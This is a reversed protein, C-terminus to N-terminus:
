KSPSDPAATPETYHADGVKERIQTSTTVVAELQSSPSLKTLAYNATLEEDTAMVKKFRRKFTAEYRAPTSAPREASIVQASFSGRIDEGDDTKFHFRHSSATEIGVLVGSVTVTEEVDEAAEALTSILSQLEPVQLLLAPRSDDGRLWRVDVGLGASVHTVAWRHMAKVVTAGLWSSNAAVEEVNKSRALNFLADVSQDIATEVLMQENSLTLVIGVSGSFAYGFQFESEHKANGKLTSKNKPGRKIADYIKSFTSQFAEIAGFVAVAPISSHDDKAFMRYSCADIGLRKTAATFEAELMRLRKQLSRLGAALSPSDSSVMAKEHQAIAAGTDRLKDQLDLLQSM